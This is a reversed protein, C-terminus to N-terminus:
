GVCIADIEPLNCLPPLATTTHYLLALCAQWDDIKVVNPDLNSCVGCLALKRAESHIILM